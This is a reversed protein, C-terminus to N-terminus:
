NTNQRGLSEASPLYESANQMGTPLRSKEREYQPASERSFIISRPIITPSGRGLTM